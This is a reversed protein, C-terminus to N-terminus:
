HERRVSIFNFFLMMEQRGLRGHGVGDVMVIRARELYRMRHGSAPQFDRTKLARVLIGIKELCVNRGRDLAEYGLITPLSTKRISTPGLLCANFAEALWTMDMLNLRGAQECISPIRLHVGRSVEEGPAQVKRVEGGAHAGGKLRVEERLFPKVTCTSSLDGQNAFLRVLDVQGLRLQSLLRRM